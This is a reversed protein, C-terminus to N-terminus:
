ASVSVLPSQSSSGGHAFSSAARLRRFEGQPRQIFLRRPCVGPHSREAKPRNVKLGRGVPYCSVFEIWSVFRGKGCPSVRGFPAGLDHGLGAERAGAPCNVKERGVLHGFGAGEDGGEPVGEGSSFRLFLLRCFNGKFKREDYLGEGRKALFGPYFGTLGLNGRPFGGFNKELSSM